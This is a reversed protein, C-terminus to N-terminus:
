RRRRRLTGLAILALLANPGPVGAKQGVACGGSESVESDHAVALGPKSGNEETSKGGAGSATAGGVSAAGSGGSGGQATGGPATGGQSSGGPSSGGAPGGGDGAGGSGGESGGSGGPKPPAPESCLWNDLWSPSTEGHDFWRVCSKGELPGASSWSFLVPADDPVCLFNDQWAEAHNESGEAIATCVMGALPGSASWKMGIDEDSCFHNDSWSDPDGPDDVSVCTKGPEPGDSSFTFGGSSFDPVPQYCLWNDGWSGALDAAEYWRVCTAGAPAGASSWSFTWPTQPPACLYNDAWVTPNQDASEHVGACSMGDLPGNHSWKLGLDGKSCFYNDAWTDPDGPENVSICAHDAVPGTGSFTFPGSSFASRATICVHNDNWSHPDATENLHVCSKGAIPGASSYSLIFPSQPPLCLYNDAWAAAHPDAPEHVNTCDMGDLPGNYSWKMGLDSSSCFHNDGWSDPDGPENITVCAMGSEPGDCSFTFGAASRDCPVSTACFAQPAGGGWWEWHWPEGAVTAKFGFKGGNANLWAGAGGGTNIDLAHGSQHNSYGPAAAQNCSNCNCNKYCNYFYQQEAMTRFGSNIKLTIGAAEAAKAMTLFANATEIEVPKGDVTVLTIAFAKGSTYGTDQKTSCDYSVLESSVQETPEHEVDHGPDEPPEASCAALGMSFLLTPLHRSFIPGRVADLTGL